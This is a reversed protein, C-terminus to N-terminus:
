FLWHLESEQWAKEFPVNNIKAQRILEEMSAFAQEEKGEWVSVYGASNDKSIFCLKKNYEFELERGSDILYALAKVSKRDFLERVMKEHVDM